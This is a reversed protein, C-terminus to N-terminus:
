LNLDSASSNKESLAPQCMTGSKIHLMQVGVGGVALLRATEPILDLSNIDAVTSLYQQELRLGQETITWLNLRQDWSASVLTKEDM